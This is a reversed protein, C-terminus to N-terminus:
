PQPTGELYAAKLQPSHNCDEQRVNVREVNLHRLKPLAALGTLGFGTVRTSGFLDLRELSTLKSIHDRLHHNNTGFDNHWQTVQYDFFGTQRRQRLSLHKLGPMAGIAEFLADAAPASVPTHMGQKELSLHVLQPLQQLTCALAENNLPPLVGLELGKLGKVHTLENLGAPSVGNLHAQVHELDPLHKLAALCEDNMTEFPVVLHKLKQLPLWGAPTINGCSWLNLHQLNPLEALPALHHDEVDFSMNLNLKQLQPMHRLPELCNGTTPFEYPSLTLSRLQPMATLPALDSNGIHRCQIGVHELGPLSHALEEFSIKKCHTLTLRKLGLHAFEPSALMKLHENTFDGELKLEHLGTPGIAKLKDRLADPHTVVVTEGPRTSLEVKATSKWAASAEGLNVLSAPDLHTAVIEKLDDPLTELPSAPKAATSARGRLLHQWLGKASRDKAKQTQKNKGEKTRSPEARSPQAPSPSTALAGTDEPGKFCKRFARSFIPKM